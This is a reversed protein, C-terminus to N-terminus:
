QGVVAARDEPKNGEAYALAEPSATLGRKEAEAIYKHARSMDKCKAAADAM